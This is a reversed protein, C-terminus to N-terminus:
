DVWLDLPALLKLIPVPMQRIGLTECRDSLALGLSARSEDAAIVERGSILLLSWAKLIGLQYSLYKFHNLFGLLGPVRGDNLGKLGLIEIHAGVYPYELVIVLGVIQSAWLIGAPPLHDFLANPPSAEVAILGVLGEIRGVHKAGLQCIHGLRHEDVEIAMLSSGYHAERSFFQLLDFVLAINLNNVVGEM